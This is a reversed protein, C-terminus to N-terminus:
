SKEKLGSSGPSGSPAPPLSLPGSAPSREVVAVNGRMGVILATEGAPLPEDTDTEAVLDVSAGGISVRIKGRRQKGLPLLLRGERGVHAESSAVLGVTERTLASLVRASVLGSGLGVAGAIVPTLVGLHTRHRGSWLFRPRVGL